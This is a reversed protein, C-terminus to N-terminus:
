AMLRRCADVQSPMKNREAFLDDPDAARLRCDLARDILGVDLGEPRCDATFRVAEDNSAVRGTIWSYVLRAPYLLARLYPKQAAESLGDLRALEASSEEWREFPGGALYARIEALSPPEPRARRQEFLAVGHDLYDLRDLPPFRGTSFSQDTWFLSLRATLEPSIEGGRERLAAPWAQSIGDGGIIALDIDSYRRNFGDHALSGILYFGALEAGFRQRAFGALQRAFDLAQARAAEDTGFDGSGLDGSM